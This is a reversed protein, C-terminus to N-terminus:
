TNDTYCVTLLIHQNAAKYMEVYTIKQVHMTYMHKDTYSIVALTSNQM